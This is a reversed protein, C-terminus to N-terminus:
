FNPNKVPASSASPPNLVIEDAPLDWYDLFNYDFTVGRKLTTGSLHNLNYGGGGNAIAYAWGWRRSDYWSLGRFVLAVRRERCLEALAQDKTLGTGQVAPVGAGQLSRVADVYGLGVETNGLRINAEALMLQNEEYSGAMFLEYVGETLSGYTYVGTMGNGGDVCEWRTGFVANTYPLAEVTYNNLFRKDDVPDGASVQKFNQIFRESIKFTSNSTTGMTLASVSGGLTSFVPNINASRGTFCNDTRQIGNTALTLVENWDASTMTPVTAKTISSNSSGNVFPALKNVLINRALMTNINRTWEPGSPVGGHGVQFFSPILQSMVAAYDSGSSTTNSIAAITAIAKVFYVKSQNIVVDQAVYNNNTAGAVDTILGACYMSGISAYAYGKWWYCWAMLTNKKDDSMTIKDILALINNMSGNLATMNTWQYYTVNYAAGTYARTNFTRIVGIQPSPNSFAQPIGTIKDPVNIVSVNQNAADAGVVDGLLESFGYNLSFYSDGLWIDQNVFGNIYTAGRTLSILGTENTVNGSITPSNPNELKLQDSCAVSMMVLLTALASYSLNKKKM